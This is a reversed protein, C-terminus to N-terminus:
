ESGRASRRRPRAVMVIAISISGLILPVWFGYESWRAPWDITRYRRETRPDYAAVWEGNWRELLVRAHAPPREHFLLGVHKVGDDYALTARDRNPPASVVEARVRGLCPPKARTCLRGPDPAGRFEYAIAFLCVLALLGAAVTIAWRVVRM